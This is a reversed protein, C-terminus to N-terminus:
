HLTHWRGKHEVKPVDLDIAAVTEGSRRRVVIRVRGRPRDPAEQVSEIPRKRSRQSAEEEDRRRRRAGRWMSLGFSSAGVLGVVALFPLYGYRLSTRDRFAQELEYLSDGYTAELATPFAEGNRLREVMGTFAVPGKARLYEVFTRAEATALTETTKEQLARDLDAFPILKGFLAAGILPLTTSGLSAEGEMSAAFGVVFWHPPLHGRTAEYIALHSLERRLAKASDVEKGAANTLSLGVLENRPHAVSIADAELPKPLLSSLEAPSQALRVRAHWLVPRGLATMLEARVADAEDLLHPIEHRASSPFELQLWEGSREVYANPLPPLAKATPAALVIWASIAGAALKWGRRRM